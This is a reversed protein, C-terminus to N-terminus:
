NGDPHGPVFCVTRIRTQRLGVLREKAPSHRLRGELDFVLGYM